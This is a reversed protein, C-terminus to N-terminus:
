VSNVDIIVAMATLGGGISYKLDPSLSPEDELEEAELVDETDAGDRGWGGANWRDAEEGEM